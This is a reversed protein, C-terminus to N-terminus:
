EVKVVMKAGSTKGEGGCVFYYMGNPYPRMDVDFDWKENLDVKALVKGNVDLMVMETAEVGNVTIHLNDRAPNPFCIFENLDETLEEADSLETREDSLYDKDSEEQVYDEREVICGSFCCCIIAGSSELHMKEEIVRGKNRLDIKREASEYGVYTAKVKYEAPVLNSLIAKGELDTIAAAIQKDLVDYVVINAFPIAEDEIYGDNVQIILKVNQEAQARIAGGSILCKILVLLLIKGSKTIRTKM